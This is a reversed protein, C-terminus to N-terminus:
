HGEYIKGVIGRPDFNAVGWPTPDNAGMSKYLSFRLFITRESVM